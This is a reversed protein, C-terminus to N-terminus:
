YELLSKEFTLLCSYGVAIMAVNRHTKAADRGTVRRFAAPALASFAQTFMIGTFGVFHLRISREVLMNSIKPRKARTAVLYGKAFVLWAAWMTWVLGMWSHMARAVYWDRAALKGGAFQAVLGALTIWWHERVSRRVAGRLPNPDGKRNAGASASTNANANSGAAGTPEDRPTPSM